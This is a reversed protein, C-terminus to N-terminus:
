NLCMNEISFRKEIWNLYNMFEDLHNKSENIILLSKATLKEKISEIAIFSLVEDTKNNLKCLLKETGKVKWAISRLIKRNDKMKRSAARALFFLHLNEFEKKSCYLRDACTYFHKTAMLADHPDNSISVRSQIKQISDNFISIKGMIDVVEESKVEETGRNKSSRSFIGVIMAKLAKM